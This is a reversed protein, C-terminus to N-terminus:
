ADKNQLNKKIESTSVGQTYDFFVVELEIGNDNFQKETELFRPTGKWDSGSFLVNFKFKNWVLLKDLTEEISVVEARDVCKLANLIRTRDVENIVSEKQKCVRVYEDSCVGVVLYDCEKKCKELLNLHGVHFLDFVGCTYGIKM